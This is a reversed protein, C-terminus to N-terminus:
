CVYILFNLLMLNKKKKKEEDVSCYYNRRRESDDDDIDDPEVNLDFGLNNEEVTEKHNKERQDDADDDTKSSNNISSNNNNNDFGKFEEFDGREFVPKWSSGQEALSLKSSGRDGKGDAGRGNDKSRIHKVASHLQRLISFFEEVEAETATREGNDDKSKTRRGENAGNVSHRRKKEMNNKEKMTTIIIIIILSGM